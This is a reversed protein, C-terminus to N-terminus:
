GGRVTLDDVVWRGGATRFLTVVVRSPVRDASRRVVAEAVVPASRPDVLTLFTVTVPAHPLERASWALVARRGHDTVVSDPGAGCYVWRAVAATVALPDAPNVDVTCRADPPDALSVLTAPAVGLRGLSGADPARAVAPLTLHASTRSISSAPLLTLLIVALIPASWWRHSRTPSTM